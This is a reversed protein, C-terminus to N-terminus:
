LLLPEQKPRTRTKKLAEARDPRPPRLLHGPEYSSMDVAFREVGLDRLFSGATDLSAFRRMAKRSTGLVKDIQRGALGYAIRIAFGGQSMGVVVIERAAGAACLERLTGETLTELTHIAASM